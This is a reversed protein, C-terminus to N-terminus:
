KINAIWVMFDIEPTLKMKKRIRHKRNDVSRITCNRYLAIEKTSFTLKTYACIEIESYTLPVCSNQNLLAAFSPFYEHFKLMFSPDDMKALDNLKNIEFISVEREREIPLGKCQVDAVQVQKKRRILNSIIFYLITSGKLILDGPVQKGSIITQKQEEQNKLENNAQGINKLHVRHLRGMLSIHHQIEM